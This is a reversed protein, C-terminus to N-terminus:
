VQKLKKEERKLRADSKRWREFASDILPRLNKDQWDSEADLEKQGERLSTFIGADWLPQFTNHALLGYMRPTRTEKALAQLSQLARNFNNDLSYGGQLVILPGPQGTRIDSICKTALERIPQSPNFRLAHEVAQFGINLLDSRLNSKLQLREPSEMM